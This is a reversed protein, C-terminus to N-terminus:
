KELLINMNTNTLVIGDKIADLYGIEEDSLNKQKYLKKVYLNYKNFNDRIEKLYVIEEKSAIKGVDNILELVKKIDHIIIKIDEHKM